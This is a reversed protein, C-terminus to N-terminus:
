VVREPQGLLVALGRIVMLVQLERQALQAMLERQEPLEALALRVLLAQQVRLERLLLEAQERIEQQAHQGQQEQKDM